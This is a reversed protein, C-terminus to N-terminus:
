AQRRSTSSVMISPWRHVSEILQQGTGPLHPILDIGSLTCPGSVYEALGDNQWGERLGGSTRVNNEM